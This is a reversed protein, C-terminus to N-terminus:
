AAALAIVSAAHAYAHTVLLVDAHAVASTIAGQEAFSLRGGPYVLDAHDIRWGPPLSQASLASSEATAQLTAGFADAYVGFRAKGSQLCLEGLHLSALPPSEFGGGFGAFAGVSAVVHPRAQPPMGPRFWRDKRLVDLVDANWDRMGVGLAIAALSPELTRARELASDRYHALGHRWAAVQGARLLEDVHSARAALAIVTQAWDRGGGHTAWHVQANALAALLRSPDSAVFHPANQAMALWLDLIAPARGGPGIWRQGVLALALDYIADVLKPVAAADRTAVASVIADIPGALLELFGADDIGPYRHRAQAHRRNFEIRGGRLVEAFAPSVSM